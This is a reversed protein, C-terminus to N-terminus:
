YGKKWILLQLGITVLLFMVPVIAYIGVAVGGVVWSASTLQFACLTAQIGAVVTVLAFVAIVYPSMRNHLVVMIIALLLMVGSMIFSLWCKNSGGNNDNDNNQYIGDNNNQNGNGNNANDLVINQLM